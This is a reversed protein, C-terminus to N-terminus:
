GFIRSTPNFDYVSQAHVSFSGTQTGEIAYSGQGFQGSFTLDTRATDTVLATLIALLLKM